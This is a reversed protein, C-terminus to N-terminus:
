VLQAALADTSDSPTKNSSTCLPEADASILASDKPMTEDKRCSRSSSPGEVLPKKFSVSTERSLAHQGRHAHSETLSGSSHGLRCLGESSHISSPDIEAGQVNDTSNYFSDSPSLEFVTHDVGNHTRKLTKQCTDVKRKPTESGCKSISADSSSYEPESYIVQDVLNETVHHDLHDVHYEKLTLCSCTGSDTDTKDEKKVVSKTKCKQHQLEKTEDKIEVQANGNETQLLPTDEDLSPCREEEELAQNLKELDSEVSDTREKLRCEKQEGNVSNTGQLKEERKGCSHDRNPACEVINDSVGGSCENKMLHENLLADVIMRDPTITGNIPVLVAKGNAQVDKCGSSVGGRVHRIEGERESGAAVVELQAYTKVGMEEESSALNEPIAELYILPKGSATKTINYSFKKPCFDEPCLNSYVPCPQYLFVHEGPLIQYLPEDVTTSQNWSKIEFFSSTCPSLEISSFTAISATNQVPYSLAETYTPPPPRKM